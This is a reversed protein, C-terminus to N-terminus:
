GGPRGAGDGVGGSGGLLRAALGLVLLLGGVMLGPDVGGVNQRGGCGSGGSEKGRAAVAGPGRAMGEPPSGGHGVRVEADIERSVVLDYGLLV